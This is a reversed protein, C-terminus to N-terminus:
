PQKVECEIVFKVKQEQGKIGSGSQYNSLISLSSSDRLHSLFENFINKTHAGGEITIRQRQEQSLELTNFIVDDPVLWSIERFLESWHTTSDGLREILLLRAEHAKREEQLKNVNELEPSLRELTKLTILKTRQTCFNAISIWLYASFFMLPLIISAAKLVKDIRWLTKKGPEKQTLLNVKSQRTGAIAIGIPIALSPLLNQFESMKGEPLSIEVGDPIGFVDIEIDLKKVLITASTKLDQMDGSLIGKSVEKGRYRQKFYLFSRKIEVTLRETYNTEAAEAGSSTLLFERSFLLTNNSVMIICASKRGAHIFAITDEESYKVSQGLAHFLALPVITLGKLCIGGLGEMARVQEMVLEGPATAILVATKKIGGNDIRGVVDFGFSVGSLATEKGKNAERIAVKNMEWDTMPPLLVIRHEVLPGSVVGYIEKNNVHEAIKATNELDSPYDFVTFNTIKIGQTSGVIEVLKVKSNAVELGITTKAKFAM